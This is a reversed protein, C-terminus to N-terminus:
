IEFVEEHCVWPEPDGAAKPQRPQERLHKRPSADLSPNSQMDFEGLAQEVEAKLAQEQARRALYGKHFRLLYSPVTRWNTEGEERVSVEAWNYEGPGDTRSGTGPAAPGLTGTSKASLVTIDSVLAGSVPAGFDFEDEPDDSRATDDEPGAMVMGVVWGRSLGKYVLVRSGLPFRRRVLVGGAVVPPHDAAQGEIYLEYTPQSHDLFAGCVEAPLWREEDESYYECPEAPELPPRLCSLGVGSRRQGTGQLLVSYAAWQSGAASTGVKVGLDGCLWRRHTRSYYEVRQGEFYAPKTTATSGALLQQGNWRIESISGTAVDFRCHSAEVAWTPLRDSSGVVFRSDLHDEINRLGSRELRGDVSLTFQDEKASYAVSVEHPLGDSVFRTGDLQGRGAVEWALQGGRIVLMKRGGRPTSKVTYLEKPMMKGMVAADHQTTLFRVELNYDSGPGLDVDSTILGSLQTPCGGFEAANPARTAAPAPAHAADEEEPRSVDEAFSGAPARRGAPAAERRVGKPARHQRGPWPLCGRGGM